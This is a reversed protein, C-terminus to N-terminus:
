ISTKKLLSFYSKIMKFEKFGSSRMSKLMLINEASVSVVVNKIGQNKLQYFICKLFKETLKRGRFEPLTIVYNIECSSENEFSFFRSYGRRRFVWIIQAIEGKYYGLYFEKGGHTKDVFFERPLHENKNRIGNLIDYNGKICKIDTSYMENDNEDGINKTFLVFEMITFYRTKIRLMTEKFGKKEYYLYLESLKNM